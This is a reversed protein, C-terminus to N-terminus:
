LSAQAVIPNPLLIEKGAAQEQIRLEKQYEMDTNVAWIDHQEGCLNRAALLATLMSHDPSNYKHLGTADFRIRIYM